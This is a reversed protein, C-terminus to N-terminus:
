RRHYPIRDQGKRAEEFLQGIVAISFGDGSKIVNSYDRLSRESPLVLMGSTRLNRYAASSMMRLNLCWKIILPHWRRQRPDKSTLAKVQQQWFLKRFSGDPLAQQVSSSEGEMIDALDQHLGSDVSVSEKACLAEIRKTLMTVKKRSDCREVQLRALKQLKEPTSLHVNPTYVSGSPTTEQDSKRRAKQRIRERLKTCNLCRVVSSSVLMTCDCDRFTQLQLSGDKSPTPVTDVFAHHVKPADFPPSGAGQCVPLKEISDLLEAISATTCMAPFHLSLPPPQMVSSSAASASPVVISKSHVWLQWKGNAFSLVHTMCVPPYGEPIGKTLLRYLTVSCDVASLKWEPFESPIEVGDSSATGKEPSLQVFREAVSFSSSAIPKLPTAPGSDGVFYTFISHNYSVHSCAAIDMCASLLRVKM